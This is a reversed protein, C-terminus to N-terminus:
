NLLFEIEEPTAGHRRLTAARKQWERETKPGPVPESQLDRADALRLGIDIFKDSVDHEYVYRRSDSCLTGCISFGSIDLDHLVFIRDVHPSLDDLLQRAATVSMGKTSALAVDFREQLRAAKLLQHFGEKEIFLINGFRHKAGSTPFPLDINFDIGAPTVIRRLGLYERVELTGLPITTETHPEVFHGRADWIIDWDDCDYEEMYDILLGQSFYNGRLVDKGTMELIMPRAAYMIQRPKVPLTGNDSAKLYAEEMVEFTADRITVRESKVLRQERNLEARRDRIEARILKEWVKTVYSVANVIADTPSGLTWRPPLSIASKGRNTYDARPVVYNLAFVIPANEKAYQNSLLADLGGDFRSFSRFPNEGVSVSWNVGTIIRRRALEPCWGFAAEVIWPLGEFEGVTKQYRFSEGRVGMKIFRNRLHAEGILGLDKPKVPKSYRQLARLLANIATANAEGEPGFLSALTARTLGTDDLVRKQKSHGTFGHIEKEIFERVLRDRGTAKDYLVSAGIYRQFREYDYWLASTPYSPLWKEWTAQSPTRKVWEVDNWTVRISLHPNLWSFDDAIQLFREGADSLTSSALDPWQITIRTGNKVFDGSPETHLDKVPEQHLQDARFIITHKLGRGEIVVAGREGDLVFPMAVVCKLANGQAGRTPSVYAERSSVRITYDLIDRVVSEPIGPGNDSVTIEGPETSVRVDIEPAIGAEEAADLSNDILEKLIACPWDEMSYGSQARLEKESCFEALRSVRFAHRELTALQRRTM